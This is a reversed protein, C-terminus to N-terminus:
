HRDQEGQAIVKRISDHLNRMSIPKKLYERIGVKKATAEDILESFGTCLIIPVGPRIKLIQQSLEQGTMKPMTQDTIVLNFSHADTRFAELAVQSSQHAVVQYGLRELMDRLVRLLPEEDDVLLVRGEGRPLAAPEIVDAEIATKSIIKPLYITFVTGEGVTSTVDVAGNYSQVIGHVAALGLGTGVGKDKTTFYPEFIRNLYERPIGHGTDKVTLRAYSEEKLDPFQARLRADADVDDLGITLVGGKERMAHASNTCLNVIVQHIQTADAMVVGATKHIERRIEITTPISARLMKTVEEVLPEIKLPKKQHESQRSFSLIQQVLEKARGAATLVQDLYNRLEARESVELLSLETYGIIAGLINNFDHAIGGALTGIAEMKQAQNLQTELLKTQTIDRINLVVGSVKNQRGFFPYYTVDLYRKGIEPFEFVDQFNIKQGKLCKDFNPKVSRKFLDDGLLEAMAHGVIEERPKGHFTVYAENIAEYVYDAGVMAMLDKSTAVIREYKRLEDEIRKKDTIDWFIGLVGIVEGNEAKVPTKVTNIIIERGHLIYTEEIDETKGSAVIRRDDAIYKEALRAPFFDHDTKGAIEEPSINLDNCYSQNCSIYVSDCDKYFIKQPLNELLTKYKSESQRLAEETRQRLGIERAMTENSEALANLKERIADRMKAFSVSLLAIEDDGKAEIEKDLDGAAILAALHTLQQIPKTIRIGYISGALTVGIVILSLLAMVSGFSRANGIVKARMRATTKGIDEGASAMTRMVVDQNAYLAGLNAQLDRMAEHLIGIEQTMAHVRAMAESGLPALGQGATTVASLSSAMEQLTELIRAEDDRDAAARRFHARQSETLLLKTKLLLYRLDPILASIQEVSSIEYERGQMKFTIIAETAKNEIRNFSDDLDIELPEIRHLIGDVRSCQRLVDNFAVAYQKLLEDSVRHKGMPPTIKELNSALRESETKLKERELTFTGVLLHIDSSLANLERSFTANAIVQDVGEDVLAIVTQEMQRTLIFNFLIFGGFAILIISNLLILKSVISKPFLKAPM